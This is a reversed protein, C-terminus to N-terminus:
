RPRLIQSFTGTLGFLKILEMQLCGNPAFKKVRQKVGLVHVNPLRFTSTQCAFRTRKAPSVHVNPLHFMCTQCTFCARKAPLVNAQTAPPIRPCLSSIGGAWFSLMKLEAWRACPEAWVLTNAKSFWDSRSNNIISKAPKCHLM